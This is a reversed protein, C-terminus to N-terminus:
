IQILFNNRLILFSNITKIKLNDKIVTKEFVSTKLSYNLRSDLEIYLLISLLNILALFM